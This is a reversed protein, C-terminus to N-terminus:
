SIFFMSSLTGVKRFPRPERETGSYPNASITESSNGLARCHLHCASFAPCSKHTDLLVHSSTIGFLLSLRGETNFEMDVQLLRVCAAPFPHAHLQTRYRRHSSHRHDLEDRLTASPNGALREVNNSRATFISASRAQDLGLSRPFQVIVMSM